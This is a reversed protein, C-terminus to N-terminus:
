EYLRVEEVDPSLAAGLQVSSIKALDVARTEPAWAVSIILGFILVAVLGYMTTTLGIGAIGVPLLYTGIAAGMRSIATCVGIGESRLNSPFLEPPYVATLNSVATMVFTFIFFCFVTITDNPAQTLVLLSIAMIVFSAILFRRRSLKATLWLGAIGGIILVLNLGLDVTWSEALNM